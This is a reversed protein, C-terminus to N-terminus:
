KESFAGKNQQFTTSKQGFAGWKKTRVTRHPPIDTSKPRYDHVGRSFHLCFVIRM